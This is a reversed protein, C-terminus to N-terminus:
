GAGNLVAWWLTLPLLAFLAATLWPILVRAASTALAKHLWQGFAFVAYTMWIVQIMLLPLLLVVRNDGFYSLGFWVFAGYALLTVAGLPPYWRSLRALGIISLVAGVWTFQNIILWGLDIWRESSRWGDAILVPANLGDSFAQQASYGWWEVRIYEVWLGYGGITLSVLLLPWFWWTTRARTLVVAAMLAAGFLVFLPENIVGVTFVLLLLLTYREDLVQPTPDPADPRPHTRLLGDVLLYLLLAACLTTIRLSNYYTFENWFIATAVLLAAYLATLGLAGWRWTVWAGVVV